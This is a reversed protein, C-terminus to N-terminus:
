QIEMATLPLFVNIVIDFFTNGIFFWLTESLASSPSDGWANIEIEMKQRFNVKKSPPPARLIFKEFGFLKVKNLFFTILFDM